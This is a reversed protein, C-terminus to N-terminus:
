RQWGLSRVQRQWSKRGTGVDDVWEEHRRRCTPGPADPVTHTHRGLPGKSWSEIDSASALGAVTVCTRRDFTPLRAVASAGSRDPTLGHGDVVRYMVKVTCRGTHNRPMALGNHRVADSRGRATSVHLGRLNNTPAVDRASHRRSM